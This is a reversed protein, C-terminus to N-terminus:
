TSPTSPIGSMSNPFDPSSKFNNNKLYAEQKSHYNANATTTDIMEIKTSDKYVNKMHSMVKHSNLETDNVEIHIRIKGPAVDDM